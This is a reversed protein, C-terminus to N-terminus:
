QLKRILRKNVILHAIQRTWTSHLPDALPYLSSSLAALLVHDVLSRSTRYHECVENKNIHLLDRALVGRGNSLFLLCRVKLM